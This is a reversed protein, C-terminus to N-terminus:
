VARGPVSSASRRARSFTMPVCDRTPHGGRLGILALHQDRLEPAPLGPGPSISRRVTAFGTRPGGPPAAPLRPRM